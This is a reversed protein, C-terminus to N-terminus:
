PLCVYCALPKMPTPLGSYRLIYPGVFILAIAGPLVFAAMQRAAKAAQLPLRSPTRAAEALLASGISSNVLMLTYAVAWAMAYFAAAEEGRLALVILPISGSLMIDVVLAAYEGQAFRALGDEPKAASEAFDPEALRRFAIRNVVALLVVVPAVFAIFIGWLPKTTAFVILLLLKLVSHAGNEIPIIRTKGIGVLM